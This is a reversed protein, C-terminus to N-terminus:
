RPIWCRYYANSNGDSDYSFDSISTSGAVGHIDYPIVGGTELDSCWEWNGTESTLAFNNMTIYWEQTTPLRGGYATFCTNAAVNWTVPGGHEATEMCGLQNDGAKVNTFGAPCAREFQVTPTTTGIGVNGDKDITMRTGASVGGHHTDFTIYQSNLSGDRVNNITIGAWSGDGIGIRLDSPVNGAAHATSFTKYIINTGAYNFGINLTNAVSLDQYSGYPSPYYTTITMQEEAFISTAFAALIFLLGAFFSFYKRRM